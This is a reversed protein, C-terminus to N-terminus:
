SHYSLSRLGADPVLGVELSLMQEQLLLEESDDIGLAGQQGSDALHLSLAIRADRLCQWQAQLEQLQEKAFLLEDAEMHADSAAIEM